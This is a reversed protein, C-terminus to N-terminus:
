DDPADELQKKIPTINIQQPSNGTMFNKIEIVVKQGGEEGEEKVPELGATKTIYKFADVKVSPPTFESRIVNHIYPLFEEAMAKLKMRFTHGETTLKRQWETFDIKFDRRSVIADLQEGTLDYRTLLSELEEPTICLALEHPLSPHYPGLSAPTTPSSSTTPLLKDPETIDPLLFNHTEEKSTKKPLKAPLEPMLDDPIAFEENM